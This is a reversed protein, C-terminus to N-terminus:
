MSLHITQATGPELVDGAAAELALDQVGDALQAEARMYYYIIILIIMM